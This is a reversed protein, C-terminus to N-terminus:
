AAAGQAAAAVVQPFELATLGVMGAPAQTSWGDELPRAHPANNTIYYINGGAKQPIASRIDALTAEGSPDLRGTEGEPVSNVGLVWDGRARGPRYDKPPPNKWLKPDGVPTRNIVREAMNSVVYGTAVNLRNKTQLVFDDIQSALSM